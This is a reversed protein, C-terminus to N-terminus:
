KFHIDDFFLGYVTRDYFLVEMWGTTRGVKPKHRLIGLIYGEENPKIGTKNTSGIFEIKKGFEPVDHDTYKIPYLPKNKLLEIFDRDKGEIEAKKILEEHTM